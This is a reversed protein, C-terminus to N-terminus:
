DHQLYLYLGYIGSILGAVTIVDGARGGIVIGAVVAAGGVIMYTLEDKEARHRAAASGALSAAVRGPVFPARVAVSTLDRSPGVVVVSRGTAAGDSGSAYAAPSTANAAEIQAPAKVAVTLSAVLAALLQCTVHARM